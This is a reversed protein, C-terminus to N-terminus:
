ALIGRRGQCVTDCPLFNPSKEDNKEMIKAALHGTEKMARYVSITL